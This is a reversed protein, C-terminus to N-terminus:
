VQRPRRRVSLLPHRRCQSRGPRHASAGEINIAINLPVGTETHKFKIIPVRARSIVQIETYNGSRVFARGLTYLLDVKDGARTLPPPPAAGM